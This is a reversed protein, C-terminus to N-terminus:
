VPNGEPSINLHIDSKNGQELELEYFVSAPTEVYDADDIHHNPYNATVYSIVPEPLNGPDIDTETRVWTGDPYFWAEAEAGDNRFDGKYIGHDYDWDYVHRGPYKEMFSNTVSDPITPEDDNDCATFTLMAGILPLLFLKRKM